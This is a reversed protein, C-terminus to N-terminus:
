LTEVLDSLDRVGDERITARYSDESRLDSGILSVSVSYKYGNKIVPVNGNEDRVRVLLAGNYFNVILGVEDGNDSSPIEYTLREGNSIADWGDQSVLRRMANTMYAVSQTGNNVSVYASSQKLSGVIQAWTVTQDQPFIADPITSNPGIPRPAIQKGDFISTSQLTNVEGTSKNFFVYVPFLTISETTQFYIMQNIQLAPLYAIKEGNPSNKRLEIGIRGTNTARVANDGTSSLDITYRYVKGSGYTVMATFEIKAKAPDDSHKEYEDKSVGRLICYGGVGFDTVLGSIDHKTTAGARVGGLRNSPAPTQGVFLIMDKNSGNILELTGSNSGDWNIGDEYPDDETKGCGSLVLASALLMALALPPLSLKTEMKM